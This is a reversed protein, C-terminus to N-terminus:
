GRNLARQVFTANTNYAGVVGRGIDGAQSMYGSSLTNAAETQLAYSQKRRTAAALAANNDTIGKQNEALKQTSAADSVPTGFNLDMGNGAFALRQAAITQVMNDMIQNSQQQGRITEEKAQMNEDQAQFQLAQSRQKAQTVDGYGQAAGSFLSLAMSGMNMKSALLTSTAPLAAGSATPGIPGSYEVGAGPSMFSSVTNVLETM